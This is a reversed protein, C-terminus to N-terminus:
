VYFGYRRAATYYGINIIYWTDFDMSTEKQDFAYQTNAFLNSQKGLLYDSRHVNSKSVPSYCASLALTKETLFKLYVYMKHCNTIRRERKVGPSVDASGCFM